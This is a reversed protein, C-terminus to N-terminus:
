RYPGSLGLQTEQYGVQTNTTQTASSFVESTCVTIISLQLFWIAYTQDFYTIGFWNVCHVAIIAGLSWLLYESKGPKASRQRLLAMASGLTSFIKKLVFIYLFMAAVGAALGYSIYQNTIDANGTGGNTYPFWYRTAELSMGAFWWNGFNQFAIDMLYSRHWGDGGSIDSAKALLYWIPAKMTIGAAVLILLLTWRVARMNKRAVWLLWSVTGVAVCNLPGGSNSAFVILMCFGMGAIAYLKQKTEGLWLAFYIPLFSGGITGLLSPHRFSGYCRPMGKRDWVDSNGPGEAGVLMFANYRFYREIMVLCALLGLMLVLAKLFSLIQDTTKLLGRFTFYTLFADVAVGIQFIAGETTRLLYVVTIYSYFLILVRDIPGLISFSFEKKSYVRAFGIIELIRFGFMNFGGLNLQLGQSLFLAGAVFALLAKERSGTMIVFSLVLLILAGLPTM